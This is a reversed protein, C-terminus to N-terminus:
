EGHLYLVFANLLFAVLLGLSIWGVAGLIRARPRYLRGVIVIGAMVLAPLTSMAHLPSVHALLPGKLFFLDDLALIVINFLKSRLLNGIAM